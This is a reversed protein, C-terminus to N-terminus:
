RRLGCRVFTFRRDRCNNLAIYKTDGLEKKDTILM